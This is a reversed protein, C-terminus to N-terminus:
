LNPVLYVKLTANSDQDTVLPELSVVKPCQGLPTIPVFFGVDSGVDLIGDFEKRSPTMNIMRFLGQKKKKEDFELYCLIKVGERTKEQPLPPVHSVPPVSSVPSVLSVPPVPPVSLIHAYETSGNNMKITWHLMTELPAKSEKIKHEVSLHQVVNCGLWKCGIPCFFPQFLCNEEHLAQDKWPLEEKCGQLYYRCPFDQEWESVPASKQTYDSM